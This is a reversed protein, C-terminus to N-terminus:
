GWVSALLFGLTILEKRPQLPHFNIKHVLSFKEHSVDGVVIKFIAGSKFVGHWLGLFSVPWEQNHAGSIVIQLLLLSFDKWLEKSTISYKCYSSYHWKRTECRRVSRCFLLRKTVLYSFSFVAANLSVLLFMCCCYCCFWRFLFFFSFSFANKKSQVIPIKKKKKKKSTAAILCIGLVGCPGRRQNGLISATRLGVFM